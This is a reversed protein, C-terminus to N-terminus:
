GADPRTYWWAWAILVGQLPLRVWLALESLPPSGIKNVAMHVNAPFIAILLAILGWAAYVRLNPVLLALGLAFEAVGSIAVMAEHAPIYPPMIRLYFEPHTFHRTGTWMYFLAMVILTGIKLWYM